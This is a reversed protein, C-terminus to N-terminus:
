TSTDSAEVNLTITKGTVTKVFIQMGGRPRSAHFDFDSIRDQEGGACQCYQTESLKDEPRELVAGECGM